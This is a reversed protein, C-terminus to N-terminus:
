NTMSVIAINQEKFGEITAHTPEWSGNIFNVVMAFTDCGNCSMWFHFFAMCTIHFILNPLVYKENTKTVIDLLVENV